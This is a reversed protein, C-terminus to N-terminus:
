RGLPVKQFDYAVDARHYVRRVAASATAHPPASRGINTFLLVENRGTVYDTLHNLVGRHTPLDKDWGAGDVVLLDNDEFYRQSAEPIEKFDSAYTVCKRGSEFRYGYSAGVNAGDSLAFATIELDGVVTPKGADLRVHEINEFPGYKKKLESWLPKPALLQISRDAWRDLAGLGGAADRSSSTLVVDTVSLAVSAQESWDHTADILVYSAINNMLASSRRRRNRGTGETIPTSPGTGLIQFYAM